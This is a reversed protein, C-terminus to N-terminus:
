APVVNLLSLRGELLTLAVPGGGLAGAVVLTPAMARLEARGVPSPFSRAVLVLAGAAVALSAMAVTNLAWVGLEGSVNYVFGLGFAACYVAFALNGPRRPAAWVVYAGLALLALSTAADVAEGAEVV